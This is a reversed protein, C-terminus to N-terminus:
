ASETEEASERVRKTPLLIGAVRAQEARIEDLTWEKYKELLPDKISHDVDSKDRWGLINKATFVAFPQAFTNQLGNAILHEKQLGKAAKYAVSFEPYVKRWERLTEHAVGISRAYASFFRLDNAVNKYYTKTDGNKFTITEEVERYPEIDFYEIIGQCYEPKYKTPRGEKSSNKAEEKVKKAQSM